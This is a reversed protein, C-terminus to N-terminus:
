KANEELLQLWRAAAHEWAFYDRVRLLSGAGLKEQLEKDALVNAVADALGPELGEPPVLFGTDGHAVVEVIGGAACAVVPVGAAMAEVNVLGFAERGPTPVVAVDAMRFWNQIRDHPVFPVFRVHGPTQRALQKLKRVYPTERNSGYFAGGVVILMADPVRSIIGPMANLLHHVGKLPILRGVYLVIRKGSLGLKMLQDQRKVDEEAEWRSIFQGPNVGLHNVLLKQELHPYLKVLEERLYFSNVVIRDMADLWRFLRNGGTREPSIFTLSHLSLWIVAAPLKKKLYYALWPRNEVQIVRYPKNRLQRVIRTPYSAAKSASRSRKGRPVRIYSTGDIRERRRQGPFRRGYVEVGASAQLQRAMEAVTHEVSSSGPSPIPFSGPTVFAIRPRQM